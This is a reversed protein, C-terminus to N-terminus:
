AAALAAVESTLYSPLGNYPNGGGLDSIYLYSVYTATSLVTSQGPFGEVGYAIFSFYQKGYSPYASLQSLSPLGANEYICLNTFVGVLNTSVGAGPNGMTMTLGLSESYNALTSYYSQTDAAGSMEDFFIGNVGYWSQYESMETEISQLDRGAYSTYVYGLVTIGAAQLQEIGTVFNPDQSGGVGSSPNIIAIIPVTPYSQKISILTSWSSDTPYTYLPVVIGTSVMTTTTTTTAVHHISGFSYAGGSLLIMVAVWIVYNGSSM